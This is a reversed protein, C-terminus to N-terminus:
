IISVMVVMSLDLIGNQISDRYKIVPLTRNRLLTRSSM